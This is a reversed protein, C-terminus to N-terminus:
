ALNLAILCAGADEMVTLDNVRHFLSSDRYRFGVLRQLIAQLVPV